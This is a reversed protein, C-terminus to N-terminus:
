DGGRRLALLGFTTAASIQLLGAVYFPIVWRIMGGPNSLLTGGAPLRVVNEPGLAREEGVYFMALNALQESQWLTAGGLALLVGALVAPLRSVFRNSQLM